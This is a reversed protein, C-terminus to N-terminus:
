RCPEEDDRWLVAKSSPFADWFRVEKCRIIEAGCIPCFNFEREGFDNTCAMCNSCKWGLAQKVWRAQIRKPQASLAQIAIEVAECLDTFCASPYNHKIVDIAEERTMKDGRKVPFRFARNDAILLEVGERM